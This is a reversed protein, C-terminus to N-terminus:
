KEQKNHYRLWKITTETLKMFRDATKRNFVLPTDLATDPYRSPQYYANLDQVFRLVEEPFQLGTDNLLAPLDHTKRMTGGQSVIVGKMQKELAQHCHLIGNEYAKGKFLLKASKLDKAAFKSWIKALDTM